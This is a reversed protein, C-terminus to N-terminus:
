YVPWEMPSMGVDLILAWIEDPAIEKDLGIEIDHSTVSGDPVSITFTYQGPPLDISPPDEPFETSMPIPTLKIEQQNITATLDVEASNLLLIRAQGPPPLIGAEAAAVPDKVTLEVSTQGALDPSIEGDNIWLNISLKQDSNEFYLRAVDGDLSHAIFEWGQGPLETEYLEVLTDMDSPSGFTVIIAFPSEMTSLYEYDSPVPFGEEEVLSLPGPDSTATETEEGTSTGSDMPPSETEPLAVFAKDAGLRAMDIVFVLEEANVPVQFEVEGRMQEGPAIQGHHQVDPNDVERLALSYSEYSNGDHDNISLDSLSLYNAELIDSTHRNEIIFVLVIFKNGEFPQSYNIEEPSTVETVAFSLDGMEITDGVNAQSGTAASDEGTSPDGEITEVLSPASNMRVTVETQAAMVIMSMHLSEDGWEFIVSAINEKVMGFSEKEQWGEAPLSQRYFEVVTEVDSPSTYTIDGLDTDYVVDQADAPTLFDPINVMTTEEGISPVSGTTEVLSPAYRINVTVRTPVSVDKSSIDISEEGREFTINVFVDNAMVSGEDAQWGEASLSQRYFETVTEADSLTTYTVEGLDADYTIDQAEAPIPIAPMEGRTFDAVGAVDTPSFYGLTSPFYYVDEADAMKPLTRLDINGHNTLSVMTKGESMDSASLNLTFDAKSFFTSATVDNASGLETDEQWGQDTLASRYLEVAEAVEIPAQYRLSGPQPQGMLEAEDPLPLDHLNIMQTAAMVTTAQRVEIAEEPEEATMAEGTQVPAEVEATGTTEETSAPAEAEAGAATKEEAAAAPPDESKSQGSCATLGLILIPLLLLMLIWNLKQHKM